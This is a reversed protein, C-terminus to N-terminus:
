SIQPDFVVFGPLREGKHTIERSRFKLRGDRSTPWLNHILEDVAIENRGGSLKSALFVCEGIVRPHRSRGVRHVLAKSLSLGIGFDIPELKYRLSLADNLEPRLSTFCTVAANYAAMIASQEDTRADYLALVGDGLFETVSGGSATIVAEVSPLFASTEYYVRELQSPPPSKAQRLHRTSDRMDAVFAVFKGVTPRLLVEHGPIYSPMENEDLRHAKALAGALKPGHERWVGDAEDLYQDIIRRIERRDM